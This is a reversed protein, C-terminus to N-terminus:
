LEDGSIGSSYQRQLEQIGLHRKSVPIRKFADMLHDNTLVRVEGERNVLFTEFSTGWVLTFDQASFNLQSDFHGHMWAAVTLGAEKYAQFLPRPDVRVQGVPGWGPTLYGWEGKGLNTIGLQAEQSKEVGEPGYAAGAAKAASRASDYGRSEVQVKSPVIVQAASGSGGGSATTSPVADDKWEIGQISTRGIGPHDLMSAMRGDPDVFRYPNSDAYRYRNFQGIPNSYATVPDVSLFRGAEPEYYRQQMYNLGTEADEVQGAYGPGGTLPRNIVEGYAGYVTREIVVGSADTVAVPSGLADTHIYEVVEAADVHPAAGLVLLLAGVTCSMLTGADFARSM